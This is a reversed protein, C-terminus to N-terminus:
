RNRKLRRYFISRPSPPPTRSGHLGDGFNTCGCSAMPSSGLMAPGVRTRRSHAAARRLCLGSVVRGHRRDLKQSESFYRVGFSSRSFDEHLYRSSSRPSFSWQLSKSAAGDPTLVRGPPISSEFVSFGTVGAVVACVNCVLWFGTAVRGGISVCLSYM